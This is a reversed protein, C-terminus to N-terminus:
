EAPSSRMSIARHSPELQPVNKGQFRVHPADNSPGTCEGHGSGLLLEHIKQVAAETAAAAVVPMTNHCAPTNSCAGSLCCIVVSTGGGGGDRHPPASACWETARGRGLSGARRGSGRRVHVGSPVSPVPDDS